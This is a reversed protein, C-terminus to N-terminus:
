QPGGETSVPAPDIVLFDVERNQERAERSHGAAIPASEGVGHSELRSAEIGHDILWQMVSHARRESLDRNAEETGVDDTHGIISLRRIGPTLRLAEALATLVPRSRGLITERGTAFYLPREIRIRDHDIALLGPCGNRRANASPAGAVDPCADTADPVTDHDRDAMPCGLRAPDPHLWADARETPCLDASNPVGDGDDDADPCGRRTPDPRAGVPVTPCLDDVDYVGDSDTDTQPCGARAPDAHAGAPVSPCLDNRDLVGDHDLDLALMPCGRRAPDPTAGAAEHVCVDDDDDVGDDDADDDADALPCGARRPDPTPGARDHICLDTDDFVGDGDTDARPHERSTGLALTVGYSLMMADGGDNPGSTFVNTFRVYPGLGVNDGIQVEFALGADLAFHVLDGTGAYSAHADIVLRGVNGLMPEFRLGGGALFVRGLERSSPFLLAGGQVELGIIDALRLEARMMGTAGNDYGMVQRQHPSLMVAGGGELHVAFGVQAAAPAAVSASALLVLIAAITLPWKGSQVKPRLM